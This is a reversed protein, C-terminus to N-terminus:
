STYLIVPITAGEYYTYVHNGNQEMKAIVQGLPQYAWYNDQLLVNAAGGKLQYKDRILAKVQSPLLHLPLTDMFEVVEKKKLWLQKSYEIVHYAYEKYNNKFVEFLNKSIAEVHYEKM